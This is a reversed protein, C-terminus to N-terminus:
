FEVNSTSTLDGVEREKPGLGVFAYGPDDLYVDGETVEVDLGDLYAGECPGHTCLGSGAEFMAGHKTCVIEGDRTPAGGGEDLRVHTFHQCHNLWAAVRGGSDGAGDGDARVLIVERVDGGDVAEVRFLFTGDAPVETVSAIREGTV